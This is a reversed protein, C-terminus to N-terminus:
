KQAHSPGARYHMYPAVGPLEAVPTGDAHRPGHNWRHLITAWEELATEPHTKRYVSWESIGLAAGQALAVALLVWAALTM